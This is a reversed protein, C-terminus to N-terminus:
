CRSGGSGKVGAAEAGEGFATAMEGGVFEGVLRGGRASAAAGVLMHVILAPQNKLPTLVTGSECPTELICAVPVAM